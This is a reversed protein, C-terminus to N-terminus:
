EQKDKAVKSLFAEETDTDFLETESFSIKVMAILSTITPPTAPPAV